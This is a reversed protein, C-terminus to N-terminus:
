PMCTSRDWLAKASHSLPLRPLLANTIWRACAYLGPFGPSIRSISPPVCTMGMSIHDSRRGRHSLPRHVILKNTLYYSVLAVVTVPRSLTVRGVPVSVSGLSRRSAATLFRGCHVFTHRLSAAHRIFAKPNYVATRLSFDQHYRLLFLNSVRHWCCRYYLSRSRQGSKNPTFRACATEYTM